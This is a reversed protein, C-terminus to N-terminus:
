GCLVCLSSCLSCLTATNVGAKSPHPDRIDLIMVDEWRIGSGDECGGMKEGILWQRPKYRGVPNGRRWRGLGGHSADERGGGPPYLPAERGEPRGKM